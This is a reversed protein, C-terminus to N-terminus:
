AAVENYGDIVNRTRTEARALDDAKRLYEAVLAAHDIPDHANSSVEVTSEHRWGRKETWTHAIRTRVTYPMGRDDM